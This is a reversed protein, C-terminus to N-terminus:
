QVARDGAPIRGGFPQEPEGRRFRDALIDIEDNRGFPPGLQAIDQTLDAAAPPDLIM